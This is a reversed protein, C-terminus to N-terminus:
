GSDVGGQGEWRELRRMRDGTECTIVSWQGATNLWRGATQQAEARNAITCIMSIERSCVYIETQHVNFVNMDQEIKINFIIVYISFPM